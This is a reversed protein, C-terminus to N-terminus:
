GNDPHSAHLRLAELIGARTPRVEVPELEASSGGKRLEARARFADRKSSSWSYGLSRGRIDKGHVRYFRVPAGPHGKPPDQHGPRSETGLPAVQRGYRGVAGAQLAEAPNGWGARIRIAIEQERDHHWGGARM